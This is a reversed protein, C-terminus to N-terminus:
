KGKIVFAELSARLSGKAPDPGGNRMERRWGGGCASLSLVEDRGM